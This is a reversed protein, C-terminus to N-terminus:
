RLVIALAIVAAAFLGPVAMSMILTKLAEEKHRRHGQGMGSRLFPGPGRAASHDKAGARQRALREM